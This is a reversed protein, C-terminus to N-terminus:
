SEANRACYGCEYPVDDYAKKFLRIFDDKSLDSYGLETRKEWLDSFAGPGETEGEEADEFEDHFECRRIYDHTELIHLLKTEDTQYLHSLNPRM